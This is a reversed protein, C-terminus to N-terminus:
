PIHFRVCRNRCVTFATIITEHYEGSSYYMNEMNLKCFARKKFFLSFKIHMNTNFILLPLADKQLHLVEKLGVALFVFCTVVLYASPKLSNNHM